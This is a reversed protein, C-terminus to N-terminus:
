SHMVEIASVYVDPIHPLTDQLAAEIQKRIYEIDGIATVAVTFVMREM